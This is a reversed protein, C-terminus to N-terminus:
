IAILFGYLTYKDSPERIRRIQIIQYGANEAMLALSAPSFVHQHEIFFEERDPGEVAAAEDPVEVYVFGERLFLTKAAILMSVPDEVHELVKNFTIAGFPTSAMNNLQNLDNHLAEVGVVSRLHTVTRPDAELATVQWGAAKMAAPFVGIGAGVDLLRPGKLEDVNCNRAFERVRAVRQHNDSKEPPLSMVTKFKQHMGHRGGYVTDMYDGSYLSGMDLDHRGFWHGCIRCREYRRQYAQGYLDFPTEGAPPANYSFATELLCGNCPCSLTPDIGM